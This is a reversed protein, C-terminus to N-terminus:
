QPLWRMQYPFQYASHVNHAANAFESHGLITNDPLLVLLVLHRPFHIRAATQLLHDAYGDINSRAPSLRHLEYLQVTPSAEYLSSSNGCRDISAATYQQNNQH